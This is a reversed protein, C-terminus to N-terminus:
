FIYLPHSFTHVDQFYAAIDGQLQQPRTRTLVFKKSETHFLKSKILQQRLRNSWEGDDYLILLVYKGTQKSEALGEEFTRWNLRDKTTAKKTAGQQGKTTRPATNRTIKANEATSAEGITSEVLLTALLAALIVFSLSTTTRPERMGPLASAQAHHCINCNIFLNASLTSIREAIQWNAKREGM